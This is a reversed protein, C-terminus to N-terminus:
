GARELLSFCQWALPSHQVLPPHGKQKQKTQNNLEKLGLSGSSSSRQAKDKHELAAEVAMQTPLVTVTLPLPLLVDGRLFVLVTHEATFSFVFSQQPVATERAFAKLQARLLARKRPELSGYTNRSLDFTVSVLAVTKKHGLQYILISIIVLFQSFKRFSSM